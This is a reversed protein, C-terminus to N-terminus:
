QLEHLQNSTKFFPLYLEFSYFMQFLTTSKSFVECDSVRIVDSTYVCTIYIMLNKKEGATHLLTIRNVM